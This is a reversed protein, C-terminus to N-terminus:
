TRTAGDIIIRACAQNNLTFTIPDLSSLHDGSRRIIKSKYASEGENNILYEEGSVRINKDKLYNYKVLLKAQDFADSSVGDVCSQFCQPTNCLEEAHLSQLALILCLSSIIKM